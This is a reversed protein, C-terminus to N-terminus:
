KEGAPGHSYSLVRAVKWTGGELRWVHAFLARGVLKEPGDVQREYFLHEGTQMAGHGPVPDVHHSSQVLERRSRYATAKKREECKKAYDAAMEDGSRYTLGGKDHYFELDDTVMTRLKAADCGEFALTFLEADRAAITRTLEPQAPVQVAAPPAAALALISLLM